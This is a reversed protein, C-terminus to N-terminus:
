GSGPLIRRVASIFEFVDVFGAEEATSAGVRAIPTANVVRSLRRLDFKSLVKLVAIGMRNLYHLALEGVSSGAIIIKVGSDSIEQFIQLPFPILSVAPPRM